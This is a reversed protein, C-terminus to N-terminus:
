TIFFSFPAFPFSSFSLLFLCFIPILLTKLAIDAKQILCLLGNKTYARVIKKHERAFTVDLPWSVVVDETKVNIRKKLFLM